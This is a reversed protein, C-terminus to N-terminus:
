ALKDEATLEGIIKSKTGLDLINAVYVTNSTDYTSKWWLKFRRREKKNGSNLDIVRTKVTLFFGETPLYDSIQEQIIYSAVSSQDDRSVALRPLSAIFAKDFPLQKKDPLAKKLANSIAKASRLVRDYILYDLIEDFGVFTDEDTISFQQGANFAVTDDVYTIGGKEIVLPRLIKSNFYKTLDQRVRSEESVEAEDSFYFKLSQLIQGRVFQFVFNNRDLLSELDFASMVFINKIIVEAIHIQVLLLYMGFKIVSRINSSLDNNESGCAIEKYEEIM